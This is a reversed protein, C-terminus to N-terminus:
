NFSIIIRKNESDYELKADGMIIEKSTIQVSNNKSEDVVSLRNQVNTEQLQAM